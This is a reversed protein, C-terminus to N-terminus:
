FAFIPHIRTYIDLYQKNKLRFVKNEQTNILYIDQNIKMYIYGNILGASIYNHNYTSFWSLVKKGKFEIYQEGIIPNNIDISRTFQNEGLSYDYASIPKYDDYIHVNNFQTTYDDYFYENSEYNSEDSQFNSEDIIRGKSNDQTITVGSNKVKFLFVPNSPTEYNKDDDIYALRFSVFTDEVVQDYVESSLEYRNSLYKSMKQNIEDTNIKTYSFDNTNISFCNLINPKREKLVCIPMNTEKNNSSTSYNTEFINQSEINLFIDKLLGKQEKIDVKNGNKESAGELSYVETINTSITPQGKFLLLSKKGLSIVKPIQNAKELLINGNNDTVLVDPLENNSSLFIFGKDGRESAESYKINKPGFLNNPIYILLFVLSVVVIIQLLLKKLVIKTM